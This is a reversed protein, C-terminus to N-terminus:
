PVIRYARGMCVKRKQEKCDSFLHCALVLLLFQWQTEAFISTSPKLEVVAYTGLIAAIM